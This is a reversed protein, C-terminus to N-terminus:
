SSAPFTELGLKELQKWYSPYSKTVVMPDNIAIEGVKLACPAFAMAMRHDKYTDIAFVMRQESEVRRGNWWMAEGIRDTGERESPPLSLSEVEFGLKRLETQLAVIRDTEKIKLSQLGTFRFPIGLMCCTVIVTQALDPTRVFDWDLRECVKGTARLVVTDYDDLLYETEVGLHAFIDQVASDGQTSGKWLNHLRIESGPQGNLALVEYWYSAASWDNEIAAGLLANYSVPKVEITHDDIWDAQAGTQRMVSLTMDIYPRSVVEGTLTLILGQPLMPGIMLLASVYQSSVSGSLTVAGGRMGDESGSSAPLAGIRLPPFGEKELYDIKAGLSRLADVLVGIPREKMRASGTLVYSGRLLSLIAASFRMATGAAGVDICKGDVAKGNLLEEDSLWNLMARSDDCLFESRPSVAELGKGLRRCWEGDLQGDKVHCLADVTLVRNCISKSWPLKVKGNIIGLAEDTRKVRFTKISIDQM